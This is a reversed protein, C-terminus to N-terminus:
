KPETSTEFNLPTNFDCSNDILIKKKNKDIISNSKKNKNSHSIKNINNSKKDEDNIVLKSYSNFLIIM